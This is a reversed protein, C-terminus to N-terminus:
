VPPITLSPIPKVPSTTGRPPVALNTQMVEGILSAPFCGRKASKAFLQATRPSNNYRHKHWAGVYAEVYATSVVEVYATSVVAEVVFDFNISALARCHRSNKYPTEM